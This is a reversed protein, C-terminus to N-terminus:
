CEGREVLSALVERAAENNPLLAIAAANRCATAIQDCEPTGVAEFQDARKEWYTATASALSDLLVRYTFHAVHDRILTPDPSPM